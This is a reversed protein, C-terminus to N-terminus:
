DDPKENYRFYKLVPLGTPGAADCRWVGDAEKRWDVVSYNTIPGPFEIFKGILIADDSDNLQFSLIDYDLLAWRTGRTEKLYTSEPVDSKFAKWRFAYTAPWNEEHLLEYFNEVDHRLGKAGAMYQTALDLDRTDPSWEISVKAQDGKAPVQVQSNMRGSCGVLILAQGLLITTRIKMESTNFRM